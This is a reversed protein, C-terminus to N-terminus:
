LRSRAVPSKKVVVPSKSVLDFRCLTAMDSIKRKQCFFRLKAVSPRSARGDTKNTFYRSNGREKRRAVPCTQPRGFIRVYIFNRAACRLRRMAFFRSVSVDAFAGDFLAPAFKGSYRKLRLRRKGSNKAMGDSRETEEKKRPRRDRITKAGGKPALLHYLIGQLINMFNSRSKGAREKSSHALSSWQDALCRDIRADSDAM